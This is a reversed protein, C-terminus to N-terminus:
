GTRNMRAAGQARRRECRRRKPWARAVGGARRLLQEGAGGAAAAPIIGFLTHLLIAGQRSAPDMRIQAHEGKAASSYIRLTDGDPGDPVVSYPYVCGSGHEGPPGNALFPERVTRQFHWGNHSYALQCDIRGLLYKHEANVAPDTHYVWLLGVFLHEYPIVPMGYLEACPTDLTDEQLALELPGFTRWDRTERVAIRRDNLAPRLTLM